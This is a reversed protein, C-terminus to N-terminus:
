LEWLGSTFNIIQKMDFLLNLNQVMNMFGFPIKILGFRDEKM